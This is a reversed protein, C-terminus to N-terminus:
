RFKSKGPASPLYKKELRYLDYNHPNSPLPDNGFDLGLISKDFNQSNTIKFELIKIHIWESGEHSNPNLKVSKKIWILASDATGVLEYLTGLNSATTYLNPNMNEIFFYIKKAEDYERLYILSAAYDSLYEISNTSEYQKFLEDAKKRLEKKDIQKTWIKGSTPDTLIVKGSLLTRYENICGMSNISIFFLFASIINKM